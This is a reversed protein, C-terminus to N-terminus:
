LSDVLRTAFEQLKGNIAFSALSKTGSTIEQKLCDYEPHSKVFENLSNLTPIIVSNMFEVSTEECRKSNQETTEKDEISIPAGLEWYIGMTHIGYKEPEDIDSLSLSPKHSSLTETLKSLETTDVTSEKVVKRTLEIVKENSM